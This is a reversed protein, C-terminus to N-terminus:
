SAAEQIAAAVTERIFSSGYRPRAAKGPLGITLLFQKGAATGSPQSM